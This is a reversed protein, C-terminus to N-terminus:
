LGLGDPEDEDFPLPITDGIRPHIRDLKRTFDPWDRSLKMITVVSGLHERLKPYGLNSTLSQFYKNKARGKEDRPTIRKLESLVGPALRSYVIDNTLHGFYRPRKVSEKPYELGRLRFMESYFDSPFTQVYAQLESAIFAELIKALANRARLEQYGTAEDVLATIGVRALGRTIIEAQQAIPKLQYPLANAERARLYVDCVDPLLEADYGSARGGNPLKFTIPFAKARIAPTVFPEISKAQLISPLEANRERRVNPRRHRGLAQLFTSQTLVRRDDALVYCEIEVDGIRLPKDPSGCIAEAIEDWRAAAARRSIESRREQSLKEARARGGRARGDEHEVGSKPINEEIM